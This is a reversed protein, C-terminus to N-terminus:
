VQAETAAPVPLVRMAEWIFGVLERALATIVKNKEKGRALLRRYRKHLRVQARWAIEIVKAPQGCQRKGLARGVAPAHRYHWAAEVLIRRLHHNGGHGTCGRHISEGTSDESPVLGAYGMMDRPHSFRGMAGLETALTAAGVLEIGRFCQLGAVVPAWPSAAVAEAIGEGLRVVLQKATLIAQRQEALLAQHLSQSFQLKDLWEEYACTWARVGPPPYKGQRLLMKSLRHRLRLLDQQAAERARVLDRLAEHTEDPVWVPSLEGARLFGALKRADRRDTRIREGPRRPTLSPAVVQCAVGMRTMQRYLGYGCPGAEYCVLVEKLSGWERCRQRLWHAIDEERNQIKGLSEEPDRGARAQAIVITEKHQDFGVYRAYDRM